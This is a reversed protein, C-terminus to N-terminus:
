IRLRTAEVTENPERFVSEFNESRLHEMIADDRRQRDFVVIGLGKDGKAVQLKM